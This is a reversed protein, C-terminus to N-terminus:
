AYRTGARPIGRFNLTEGPRYLGRDTFLFVVLREEEADFPSASAQVDFRWHNHSNNPIFEARDITKGAGESVRVRFGEFAVETNWYDLRPETFRSVFDGAPFTFVALGQADTTGNAIIKENELLEVAANAAPSGDSLHTAWVLAMNYAYRVTIGINTVQVTLWTDGSYIRDAQWSSTTKYDWRMAASGKGAANLFPALDEMFYRKGSANVNKLGTLPLREYPGRAAAARSRLSVTNQAEWIISPPYGAELMRPGWNKIYVFSAPEGTNVTVEEASGLPRGYLDPLDASIDVTYNKQYQLPLGSLEVTSGYVNVNEKALAPLGNVTIYKEADNPEVEQNFELSISISDGDASGPRANDFNFPLLTHFTWSTDQATGLWGPESRAGAKLVM